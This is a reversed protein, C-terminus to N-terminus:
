QLEKLNGFAAGGRLPHPLTKEIGHRNRIALGHGIDSITLQNADKHDAFFSLDIFNQRTVLHFEFPLRLQSRLRDLAGEGPLDPCALKLIGDSLSVPVVKAASTLGCPLLRLLTRNVGKPAITGGPLRHHMM